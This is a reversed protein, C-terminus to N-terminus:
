GGLRAKVIGSARGFDMQGAYNDRLAGMVAGMDKLGTAGLDAITKEVASETASADLQEPLFRQIIVIEEAEQEALELRGGKEYMAISDRRQKVMTQLMQLIEDDGIGESNDKGRAAIDRDKLAAMILRMTSVARADKDKLASKLADPLQERIM